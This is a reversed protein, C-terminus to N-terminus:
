GTGSGHRRWGRAQHTRVHLLLSRRTQHRFGREHRCAYLLFGDEVGAAHDDSRFVALDRMDVGLLDDEDALLGALLAFIRQDKELAGVAEGCEVLARDDRDAVLDLFAVDQGVGRSGVVALDGEAVVSQHSEHGPGAAVVLIGDDEGLAHDLIGFPARDVDFFERDVDAVGLEAGFDRGAVDGVDAFGFQLFRVFFADDPDAGFHSGAVNQDAFDRRFALGLKSRFLAQQAGDEAFFRAINLVSRLPHLVALAAADDRDLSERALAAVLELAPMM